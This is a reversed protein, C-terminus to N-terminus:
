LKSIVHILGQLEKNCRDTNDKTSKQLLLKYLGKLKKTVIVQILSQVNKNVVQILM